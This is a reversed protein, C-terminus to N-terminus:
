KIVEEIETLTLTNVINKKEAWGRRAVDVAYRMNDMHDIHHSDTGLSFVVGMKVATKVLHDPLDLRMPDGNIEILKKNNICYEFIREWDAEISERENM